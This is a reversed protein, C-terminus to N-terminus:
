TNGDEKTYINIIAPDSFFDGDVTKVTLSLEYQSAPVLSTVLHVCHMALREFSYKYLQFVYFPNTM